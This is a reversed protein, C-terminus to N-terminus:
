LICLTGFYKTYLIGLGFEPAHLPPMTPRRLVFFVFHVSNSTYQIVQGFEPAQLPPMTPRRLVFFVFHVSNRTYLIVLGFGPAQLTACCAAEGPAM